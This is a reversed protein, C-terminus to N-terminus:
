TLAGAPAARGDVLQMTRRWLAALIVSSGLLSCIPISMAGLAFSSLSSERSSAVPQRRRVPPRRFRRRRAGAADLGPAPRRPRPDRRARAPAPPHRLRRVRARLLHDVLWPSIAIMVLAVLAGLGAILRLPRLLRVARRDSPASAFAPFMFSAYAAAFLVIPQGWKNVAGIQAAAANGSTWAIAAISFGLISTSFSSVGFSVAGAWPNM